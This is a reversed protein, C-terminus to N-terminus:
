LHKVRGIGKLSLVNFVLAKQLLLRQLRINLFDM